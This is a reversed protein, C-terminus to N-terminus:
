NSPAGHNHGHAKAGVPRDNDVSVDLTIEEGSSFTLTLPFTDGQALPKTLGLLMVHDGGRGLSHQGNAPIDFVEVETMRMVGNADEVHTHLEARTAAPTSVSILRVDQSAHNEIILFVAGSTASAGSVRAYPEAIHVGEHALVPTALLAAVAALLRLM